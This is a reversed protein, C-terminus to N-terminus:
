SEKKVVKHLTLSKPEFMALMALVLKDSVEVEHFSESEGDGM